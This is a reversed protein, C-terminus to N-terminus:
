RSTSHQSRAPQDYFLKGTLIFSIFVFAGFILGSKALQMGGSLILGSTCGGAMRAGFILVFGGILSWVIRRGPSDGKLAKWRPHVLVLGFDKRILAPVLGALFAGGLFWVEWLGPTRIKAFYGNDTVGTILDAVYPFSTSAGLPRGMVADLMLVANLVAIGIGAVIWKRDVGKERRDVAFVCWIVIAAIAITLAHFAFNFEGITSFLSLAGLDPGLVPLIVPHLLTFVLGGILGGVIGVWADLAGQGASISLTGPCYGLVAMGFGFLLGGWVLGGMMVPKVHYSALGLEVLPNVLLLGVGIALGMVKAPTFDELVAMGTITDNRNVRAFQMFFGFIFGFLVTAVISSM